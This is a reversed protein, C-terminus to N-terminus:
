IHILSLDHDDGNDGRSYYTTWVKERLKRNDAYTLVPEMSSRTNTVVWKGEASEGDKAREKANAVMADVVSESLGALEAKDTVVTTPGGEDALVNQSFQTFLGALQSNIETLKKKEDASLKAGQRVFSKYHDDVLRRQALNMSKLAESNNVAEVRKFLKENQMVWDNYKSLQPMVEGELDPIKGVNLNATFVGFITAVRSLTRGAKEYEVITNEFTPPEDSDAIKEIDAKAQKIAADFAPLFQDENIERWPPVGGYPGTWDNLLVNDSKMEADGTQGLVNQTPAGLVLVVAPLVFYKLITKM